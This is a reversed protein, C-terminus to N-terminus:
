SIELHYMREPAIACAGVTLWIAMEWTRTTTGRFNEYGEVGPNEIGYKLVGDGIVLIHSDSIKQVGYADKYSKLHIVPVGRYRGLFGTARYLESKMDNPLYEKDLAELFTLAGFRGIIAKAGANTYDELHVIAADLAAKKTSATDGSAITAYNSNTTTSTVARWAVEWVMSNQAGLIQNTADTKLDSITGYRGSRLQGIELETAVAITKKPLTIVTNTIQSRPAFAGPEVVYAVLNSPTKFQIEEGPNFYRTDALLNILQQNYVDKRVSEVIKTALARRSADVPDSWDIGKVLTDLAEQEAKTFEKAM